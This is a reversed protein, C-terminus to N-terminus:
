LYSYPALIIEGYIFILCVSRLLPLLDLTHETVCVCVCVCVCAGKVTGTGLRPCVTALRRRIPDLSHNRYAPAYDLWVSCFSQWIEQVVKLLCCSLICKSITVSFIHDSAMRQYLYKWLLLHSRRDGCSILCGYPQRLGSVKRGKMWFVALRMLLTSIFFMLVASTFEPFEGPQKKEEFVLRTKLEPACKLVSDGSFSASHVHSLSHM